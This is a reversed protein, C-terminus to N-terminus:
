LTSISAVIEVYFWHETKDGKHCKNVTYQHGVRNGYWIINTENLVTVRCISVLPIMFQTWGRSLYPAHQKIHIDKKFKRNRIIGENKLGKRLRRFKASLRIFASKGRHM